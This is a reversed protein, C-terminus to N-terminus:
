EEDQAQWYGKSAMHIAIFYGPTKLVEYDNPKIFNNTLKLKEGLIITRKNVVEWKDKSTILMRVLILKAVERLARSKFLTICLLRLCIFKYPNQVGKPMSVIEASVQIKDGEIILLNNANFSQTSGLKNKKNRLVVGGDILSNKGNVYHYVVGGKHTSIITYHNKGSDIIIGAEKFHIRYIEKNAIEKKKLKEKKVDKITAAWCYSNFMPVLNPEDIGSLTVVNKLEISKEMKNVLFESQHGEIMLALCGAPYYFRTNRSGYLGGFSGDPHAFHSMFELSKVLRKNLGLDPRQLNVDALYYTCLTQYGPDFGDYERFWGEISQNKLIRDLLEHAKQSAQTDHAIKEWRFLAAVATALHNSILGHTEDARKLFHIMPEVVQIWSGLTEQDVKKELLEITCLLDFAVLATVCYSGENPFAEELSGDVHTLKKAGLFLANIRSLFVENSTKFPWLGNCWLRALGHAIGQFSANGFDILGWAWYYRDAMGYTQSTSDIDILSLIRPLNKEVEDLYVNKTM